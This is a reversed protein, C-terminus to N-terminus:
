SVIARLNKVDISFDSHIGMAVSMPSGFTYRIKNGVACAINQWYWYSIGKFEPILIDIKCNQNAFLLNALAAGSAGVIHEANSFLSLQQGFTLKEPYVPTFGSRDLIRLLKVENVLMRGGGSRRLFVRKPWQGDTVESVASVDTVASRLMSVMNALAHPNFVGHSHGYDSQVRRGWPVYGAVSTVVLEQVLLSKRPPVFIVQRDHCILALSEILNEHLGSDVLIPVEKFRVDASFAAIRPLVETLWHAYNPACADLFTAARNLKSSIHSSANNWRLTLFKPDIFHHGHLEESTSELQFNYLDHSIAFNDKFIINTGGVVTANIVTAAYIEPASYSLHPAILVRKKYPPNVDPPPTEVTGAAILPVRKEAVCFESLSIIKRRKLGYFRVSSANVFHLLYNLFRSIARYKKFRREYIPWLATQRLREYLSLVEEAELEVSRLRSIIQDRTASFHQSESEDSPLGNDAARIQRAIADAMEDLQILRYSDDIARRSETDLFRRYRRYIRLWQDHSEEVKTFEHPHSRMRSLLCEAARHM